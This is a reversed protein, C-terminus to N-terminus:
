RGELRGAVDAGWREVESQLMRALAPRVASYFGRGSVYLTRIRAKYRKAGGGTRRIAHGNDLYNTIAGPSEAGSRGGAPRVAAYGGGTGVYKHQWGSVHGNADNLRGAIQGRVGSIMRAGLREHIARQDHSKRQVEANMRDSLQNLQRAGDM